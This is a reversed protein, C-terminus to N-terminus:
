KRLEYCMLINYHRLYLKGDHIVPHSWAAGKATLPDLRGKSKFAKPTAEFLFVPGKDYRFVLHGDAYVIAASGKAPADAKWAIKGTLFELCTPTGRNQGAGGYLHDGVLVVGGHHNDFQKPKLFYVEKAKVKKKNGSLKLLASGTNYCTTVFVYDGRIQPTSINATGNAIRNYGWLFRGDDAAVSIAGRGVIQVYQRVGGGESVVISSYAAGDKGRQGIEPIGCKWILKGTKKNLAVITADKGGPTCVVQDGDVLPSECYKWMSMVKGGFDKIFNKRWVVKGTATEACAIDGSTGIACVYDGDVTPTGRPGSAHPPGVPAAWLRKRTKLDYAIICQSDSGELKIDGMTFIKDGVIAVASYGKGLDEIKWLLKLGGDPWQKLLGTEGCKGDRQPGRFQPCDPVAAKAMGTSLITALVMVATVSHRAYDTM